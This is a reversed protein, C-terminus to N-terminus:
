WGQCLCFDAITATREIEKPSGLEHKFRWSNLTFFFKLFSNRGEEGKQFSTSESSSSEEGKKKGADQQACFKRHKCIIEWYMDETIAGERLLCRAKREADSEGAHAHKPGKRGSFLNEWLHVQELQKRLRASEVSAERGEDVAEMVASLTERTEDVVTRIRQSTLVTPSELERLYFGYSLGINSLLFLGYLEELRKRMKGLCNDLVHGCKEQTEQKSAFASSSANIHITDFESKYQHSHIHLHLFISSGPRCTELYMKFVVLNQAFTDVNRNLFSKLPIRGLSSGSVLSSPAADMHKQSKEVDNKKLDREKELFLGYIASECFPILLEESLIKEVVESTELLLVNVKKVEIMDRDLISRGDKLSNSLEKLKRALAPNRSKLFTRVMKNRDGDHNLYTMLIHQLKEHVVSFPNERMRNKLSVVDTWYLTATRLGVKDPVRCSSSDLYEVCIYKKLLGRMEVHKKWLEAWSRPPLGQFAAAPELITEDNEFLNPFHMGNM